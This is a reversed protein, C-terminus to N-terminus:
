EVLWCCFMSKSVCLLINQRRFVTLPFQEVGSKWLLGIVLKHIHSFYYYYHQTFSGTKHRNCIQNTIIEDVNQTITRKLKEKEKLRNTNSRIKGINIDPISYGHYM